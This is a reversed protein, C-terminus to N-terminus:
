MGPHRCDGDAAISPEQRAATPVGEPPSAQRKGRRETPAGEPAITECEDLCIM